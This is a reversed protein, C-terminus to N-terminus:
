PTCIIKIDIIHLSTCFRIQTAPSSGVNTSDGVSGLHDEFPTQMEAHM